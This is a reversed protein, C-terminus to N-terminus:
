NQPRFNIPNIIILPLIIQQCKRFVNVKQMYKGNNFDVITAASYFITMYISPSRVIKLDIYEYTIVYIYYVAQVTLTTRPKHYDKQFPIHYDNQVAFIYTTPIVINQRTENIMTIQDCQTSGIGLYLSYYYKAKIVPVYLLYYQTYIMSDAKKGFTIRVIFIDKM